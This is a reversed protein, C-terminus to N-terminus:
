SGRSTGVRHMLNLLPCDKIYDVKAAEGAAAAEDESKGADLADKKAKDGAEDRGDGLLRTLNKIILNGCIGGTKNEGLGCMNLVNLSDGLVWRGTTKYDGYDYVEPNLVSLDPLLSSLKLKFSVLTIQPFPLGFLSLGPPRPTKLEINATGINFIGVAAERPPGVKVEEMGCVNISDVADKVISMCTATCAAQGLGPIVNCVASVSSCIGFAPGQVAGWVVRHVTENITGCTATVCKADSVEKYEIVKGGFPTYLGVAEAKITDSFFASVVLMAVVLISFVLHAARKM